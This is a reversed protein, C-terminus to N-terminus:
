QAALSVLMSLVLVVTIHLSAPPITSLVDYRRQDDNALSVLTSVNIFIAYM